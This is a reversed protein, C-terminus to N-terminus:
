ISVNNWFSVPLLAATAIGVLAPIRHPSQAASMDQPEDPVSSACVTKRNIHGMTEDFIRCLM